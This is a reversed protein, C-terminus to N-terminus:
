GRFQFMSARPTEPRDKYTGSQTALSGLQYCLLSTLTFQYVYVPSLVPGDRRGLPANSLLYLMERGIVPIFLPCPLDSPIWLYKMNALLRLYILLMHHISFYRSYSLAALVGLCCEFYRSNSDWLLVFRYYISGPLARLRLIDPFLM